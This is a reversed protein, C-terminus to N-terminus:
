CALIWQSGAGTILVPELALRLWGATALGRCSGVRGSASPRWLKSEEFARGDVRGAAGSSGSRLRMIKSARSRGPTRAAPCEASDVCDSGDRCSLASGASGSRGCGAPGSWSISFRSLEELSQCDSVPAGATSVRSVAHRCDPLDRWGSLRPACWGAPGCVLLNAPRVM